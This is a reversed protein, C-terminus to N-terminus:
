NVTLVQVDSALCCSPRGCTMDASQRCTSMSEEEEEEGGGGGGEKRRMRYLLPVESSCHRDFNGESLV